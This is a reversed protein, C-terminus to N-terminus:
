QRIYKFVINTRWRGMRRVEDIPYNYKILDTTRGIRMSHMGYYDSNLGLNSIVDKLLKRTHIPEVPEKNSFVFFQETDHSYKGRANLYGQMLSFPCFNRHIYRGSKVDENATIKIKQPNDAKGHTKSSYLVILINKKNLACHVDKAKIVHDSSVVESIRMMGYYCLAFLTKYLIDLYPQQNFIKGIEFLMLELLGCQIPLRTYVKDNIIRCARTLSGLLIKKDDWPYGDDILIRKIGSVYSKVTASQM